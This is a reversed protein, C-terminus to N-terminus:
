PKEAATADGDAPVEAPVKDEEEEKKETTEMKAPSGAAESDLM